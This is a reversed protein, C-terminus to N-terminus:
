PTNARRQEQRREIQRDDIDGEGVDEGLEADATGVRRPDDGGVVDEVAGQEDDGALDGVLDPAAADEQEPEGDEREARQDGRECGAETDQDGSPCDLSGASGHQGRRREAQEECRERQFAARLDDGHPAADTREADRAPRTEPRECDREGIPAGREPDVQRDAEAINM